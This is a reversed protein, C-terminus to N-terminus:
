EYKEGISIIRWDAKNKNYLRIAELNAYAVANHFSTAEVTIHLKKTDDEVFTIWYEKIQKSM